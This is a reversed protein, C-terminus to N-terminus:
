YIACVSMKNIEKTTTTKKTKTTMMKKMIKRVVVSRRVNRFVNSTCHVGHHDVGNGNSWEM